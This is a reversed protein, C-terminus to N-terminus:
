ILHLFLPMFLSLIQLVTCKGQMEEWKDWEEKFPLSGIFFISYFFFCARAALICFFLPLSLFPSTTPSCREKPCQLTGVDFRRDENLLGTDVTTVDKNVCGLVEFGEPSKRPPNLMFIDPSSVSCFAAEQMRTKILGQTSSPPHPLFLVVSICMLTRICVCVCMCVCAIKIMLVWSRECAKPIAFLGQIESNYKKWGRFCIWMWRLFLFTSCTFYM